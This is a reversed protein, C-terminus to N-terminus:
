ENLQQIVTAFRQQLDANGEKEKLYSSAAKRLDESLEIMCIRLDGDEDESLHGSASCDSHWSISVGRRVSLNHVLSNRALKWLKARVNRDHYACPFYRDLAMHFQCRNARNDIQGDLFVGIAQIMSLALLAAPFGRKKERCSEIVAIFEGFVKELTPHERQIGTGDSM